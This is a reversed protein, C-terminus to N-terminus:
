FFTFLKSDIRQIFVSDLWTRPVHNPISYVTNSLFSKIGGLDYNETSTFSMLRQYQFDLEEINSYKRLKGWLFMHPFMSSILYSVFCLDLFSLFNLNFYVLSLLVHDGPDHRPCFSSAWSSLWGPMGVKTFNLSIYM